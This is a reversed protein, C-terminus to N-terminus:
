IDRETHTSHPFRACHGSSLDGLVRTKHEPGRGIKRRCTNRGCWGIQTRMLADNVILADPSRVPLELTAAYCHVYRHAASQANTCGLAHTGSDESMGTECDCGFPHECWLQLASGDPCHQCLP